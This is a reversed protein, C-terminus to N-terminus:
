IGSAPRPCCDPWWDYTMPDFKNSKALNESAPLVQFNHHWHLGTVLHHKLPVIHDVHSGPPCVPRSVRLGRSALQKLTERGMCRWWKFPALEAATFGTPPPAKQALFAWVLCWYAEVMELPRSSYRRTLGPYNEPKEAHGVVDGVSVSRVGRFECLSDALICRALLPKSLGVTIFGEEVAWRMDSLHHGGLLRECARTYTDAAGMRHAWEPIVIRRLHDAIWAAREKFYNPLSNEHAM